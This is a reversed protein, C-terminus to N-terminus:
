EEVYIIKSGQPEFRFTVLSLEALASIIAPHHEPHAYLLLFGGGGAGLIKGGIAGHKRAREYWEDIKGNSIGSALSRKLLWSEHLMEGFNDLGNACLAGRM